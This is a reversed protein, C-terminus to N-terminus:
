GGSRVGSVSYGGTRARAEELRGSSWVRSWPGPQDCSSLGDCRDSRAPSGPLGPTSGALAGPASCLPWPASPAPARQPAPAAAPRANASWRGRAGKRPPTPAPCVPDLVFTFLGPLTNGSAAACCRKRASAADAELYPQCRVLLDAQCRRQAAPRQTAPWLRQARCAPGYVGHLQTPWHSATDSRALQRLRRIRCGAERRRNRSRMGCTAPGDSGVEAMSYQLWYRPMPRTPPVLVAPMMLASFM